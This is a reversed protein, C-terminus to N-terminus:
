TTQLPSGSKVTLQILLYTAAMSRSLNLVFTPSHLKWFLLSDLIFWSNSFFPQSWPYSPNLSESAELKLCCIAQAM